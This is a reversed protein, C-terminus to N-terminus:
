SKLLIGTLMRGSHVTQRRASFFLEQKDFTCLETAEINSELVGLNILERRNIEKLNIHCKSSNYNKICVKDDSLDIGNAEM